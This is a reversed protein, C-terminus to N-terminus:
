TSTRAHVWCLPSGNKTYTACKVCEPVSCNINDRISIRELIYINLAKSLEDLMAEESFNNIYHEIDFTNDTM